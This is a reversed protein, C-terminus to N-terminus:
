RRLADAEEQHAGVDADSVPGANAALAEQHRMMAIVRGAAEVLRDRSLEGSKLAELLGDRAGQPNSPTLLIDCGANMARVAIEASTGQLAGMDLGDSITVGTFGLDDRLYDYAVHSLSAPVGEDWDRVAIHGMMVMPAGAEIGAIFPPLDREIVEEMSANQLPLGVHSDTGLNGHGPFHKISSLVGGGTFGEVAEVVARSVTGTDDSAARSRITVDTQSTVDAVPAYNTNVGSARLERAMAAMAASVVGPEADGAAAFAPFTTWPGREGSLRQVIGGENDVAITAPWDRGLEEHVDQIAGATAQVQDLGTINPSFLIIGGLRLDRVLGAPVEPATGDYRAVIVLGALDEDSLEAAHARAQEIDLETVGWALPEPESEPEPEATWQEQESSSEPVDSPNPADGTPATCAALFLGAGLAFTLASRFSKM